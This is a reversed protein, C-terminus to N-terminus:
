RNRDFIWVEEQVEEKQEQEKKMQRAVAELRMFNDLMDNSYKYVIGIARTKEGFRAIAEQLDCDALGLWEVKEKDTLSRYMEKTMVPENSHSYVEEGDLEMEKSVIETKEEAKMQLMEEAPQSALESESLTEHEEVAESIPKEERIDYDSMTEEPEVISLEAKTKTGTEYLESVTEAEALSEEEYSEYM